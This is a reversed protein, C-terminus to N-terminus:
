SNEKLEPYLKKQCDPCISHSFDVGAHEKIYVEVQQWYGKDDRIKKCSACIPLMGSLQRVERLAKELERERRKLDRFLLLYPYRLGTEIIAIYIFLFSLIKLFHGFWNVLDTAHFYMTFVLESAITSFISLSLFRFVRPDLLSRRKRIYILAGLLALGIIYEVYKKFETLGVERIYMAPVFGRAFSAAIVAVVLVFYFLFTWKVNLRRTLFYPAALLSMSQFIRASLWLKISLNADYGQFIDMGWYSLTHLLDLVAVFFFSVGLMLIFDNNSFQRSNWAIMFIGFGVVISFMEALSHFLLYNYLSVLILGLFVFFILVIVGVM